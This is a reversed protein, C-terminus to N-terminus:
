LIVTLFWILGILEPLFFFSVFLSNSFTVGSQAPKMGQINENNMFYFLTSSDSIPNQKEFTRPYNSKNKLPRPNTNPPERKFVRFVM